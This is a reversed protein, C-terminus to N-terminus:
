ARIHIALPRLGYDKAPLHAGRHDAEVRFNVAFAILMANGIERRWCLVCEIIPEGAARDVFSRATKMESCPLRKGDRADLEDQFFIAAFRANVDGTMLKTVSEAPAHCFGFQRDGRELFQKSMAARAGRLSIDVQQVWNQAIFVVAGDRTNQLTEIVMEVPLRLAWKLFVCGVSGATVGKPSHSGSFRRMWASKQKQSLCPPYLGRSAVDIGDGRPERETIEMQGSPFDLRFM